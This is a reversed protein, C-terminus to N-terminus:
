WQRYRRTTEVNKGRKKKGLLRFNGMEIEEGKISERAEQM